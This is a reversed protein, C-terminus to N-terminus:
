ASKKPICSRDIKFINHIVQQVALNTALNRLAALKQDQTATPSAVTASTSRKSNVVVGDWLTLVGVRITNVQLCTERKTQRKTEAAVRLALQRTAEVERTAARKDAANQRTVQAALKRNTTNSNSVTVADSVIVATFNLVTAVALVWILDRRRKKPPDAVPTTM